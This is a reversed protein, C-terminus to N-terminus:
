VSIIRATIVSLNRKIRDKKHTYDSPLRGFVNEAHIFEMKGEEKSAYM